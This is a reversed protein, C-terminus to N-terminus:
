MYGLAKLQRRDEETLPVVDWEGPLSATRDATVAKLFLRLTKRYHEVGPQNQAAINNKEAPDKRLDYLEETRKEESVLCKENETRVSHSWWAPTDIGIAKTDVYLEGVVIKRDYPKRTESADILPLLSMCDAPVHHEVRLMEVVTAYLDTLSVQRTVRGAPTKDGAFRMILPVALVEDYLTKGHCFDGHELFEEGHDSFIIVVTQDLLNMEHLQDLFNGLLDDTYAIEGDYLAELHVNDADSLNKQPGFVNKGVPGTYDSDFMTAFRGPPAYPEHTQYTHVFLFFPLRGFKRIWSLAKNFTNEADGAIGHKGDSYLEFGQAFGMGACVWGGETYAATLYRCERAIEGLTTERTQIVRFAPLVDKPGQVSPHLGTFVSAHSPLTWSTPAICNEFLFAEGAFRDINPSTDRHYGYCGLHDARLTDLSILIFNQRTDSRESGASYLIPSSWVPSWTLLPVVPLSGAAEHHEVTDTTFVLRVTSGALDSLDLSIDVWHPQAEGSEAKLTRSFIEKRDRGRQVEVSFRVAPLQTASPEGEFGIGFDFRASSPIRFARTVYERPLRLVERASAHVRRGPEGAALVEVKRRALEAVDGELPVYVRTAGDQAPSQEGSPLRRVEVTVGTADPSIREIEAVAGLPITGDQAVEIEQLASRYPAFLVNRTESGIHVKTEHWRDGPAVEEVFRHFPAPAPTRQCGICVLVVACWRWWRLFSLWNERRGTAEAMNLMGGAFAHIHVM